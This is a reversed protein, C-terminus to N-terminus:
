IRVHSRPKWTLSRYKTNNEKYELRKQSNLSLLFMFFKCNQGLLRPGMGSYQYISLPRNRKDRYPQDQSRSNSKFENSIHCYTCFVFRIELVHGTVIQFDLIFLKEQTSVLQYDWDACIWVIQVALNRTRQALRFFVPIQSLDFVRFIKSLISVPIENDFATESEGEREKFTLLLCKIHNTQQIEASWFRGVRKM